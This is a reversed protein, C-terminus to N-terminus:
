LVFVVATSRFSAGQCTLSWDACVTGMAGCAATIARVTCGLEAMRGTRELRVRRATRAMRAMSGMPVRRGRRETQELRARLAWWDQSAMAEQQAACVSAMRAPTERGDMCAWPARHATHARHVRRVRSVLLAPTALWARAAPLGWPARTAQLVRAVGSVPSAWQARRGQLGQRARRGLRAKSDVRVLIATPALRALSVLHAKCVVRAQASVRL